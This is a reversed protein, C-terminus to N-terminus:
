ARQQTLFDHEYFDAPDGIRRIGIHNHLGSGIGDPQIKEGTGLPVNM